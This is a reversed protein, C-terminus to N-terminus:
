IALSLQGDKFVQFEHTRLEGGEITRGRLFNLRERYTKLSLMQEQFKGLPKGDADTRTLIGLDLWSNEGNRKVAIYYAIPSDVKDNIRIGVVYPTSDPFM